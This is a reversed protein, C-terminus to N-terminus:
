FAFNFELIEALIHAPVRSTTSSSQAPIQAPTTSSNQAPIQAPTTSSNQAPIHAPKSIVLISCV